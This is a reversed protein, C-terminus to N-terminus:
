AERSSLSCRPFICIFKSKLETQVIKVSRTFIPQVEPFHLYIQKEARNASDKCDHIIKLIFCFLDTFSNIRLYRTKMNASKTMANPVESEIRALKPEEGM